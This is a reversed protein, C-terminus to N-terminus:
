IMFLTEKVNIKPQCAQDGDVRTTGEMICDM